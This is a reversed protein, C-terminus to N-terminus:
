CGLCGDTSEKGQGVVCAWGKWRDLEGKKRQRQKPSAAHHVKFHLARDALTADAWVPRAPGCGGIAKVLVQRRSIM